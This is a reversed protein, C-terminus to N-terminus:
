LLLNFVAWFLAVVVGALLDDCLTGWAGPLERDLWGIPGPKSIDLVRFLVFSVMVVWINPAYFAVAIAQGVLEDIVIRKDDHIQWAQETKAIVWLALASLLTLVLALVLIRRLPHDFLLHSWQYLALGVFLGPVSGWTGPAQPMFGLPYVTAM